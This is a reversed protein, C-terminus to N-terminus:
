LRAALADCAARLQAPEVATDIVTAADLEDAALTERWGFQRELVAIGAESPDAGGEARAAVRARLVDPPAECAILAHRVGIDAALARFRKREDRRLFAADIVVPVGAAAITRALEALRAYTRENAEPTYIRGDTRAHPALGFLRKREVDSRV